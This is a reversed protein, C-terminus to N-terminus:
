HDLLTNLKELEPLKRHYSVYDRLHGNKVSVPLTPLTVFGFDLNKKKLVHKSYLYKKPSNANHASFAPLPVDM